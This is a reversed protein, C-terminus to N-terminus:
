SAAMVSIFMKWKGDIQKLRVKDPSGDGKAEKVMVIDHSIKEEAITYDEIKPVVSTDAPHEKYWNACFGAGKSPHVDILSCVKDWDKAKVAEYYSLYVAFAADANAPNTLPKTEAPTTEYVPPPIVIREDSWNPAKIGLDIKDGPKLTSTDIPKTTDKGSSTAESTPSGSDTPIPLKTSDVPQTYSDTPMTSSANSEKSPLSPTEGASCGALVFALSLPLSVWIKNNKM